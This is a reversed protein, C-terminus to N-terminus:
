GTIAKIGPLTKGEFFELMAGGGTSVYSVSDALNFQKVAAVSDGGGVLSFAGNATSQAIAKAIEVTGTKFSDMEFVGMPGNWLITKSNQITAKFNEIAKKGIDLGMWADAIKDSDALQTNANNAFDDAIISDIPLLLQTNNEKAKQLLEKALDLKDDECLSKGINGGMAKFFTYAMGGGIIINDAQEMLNDIIEIKDSVKAGGLIATFPHEAEKLVKNANAIEKAMLFGFCKNGFFQAITATSAHARHATGFADNVYIDAGLDALSKAFNEDGKKEESYFRTNELLLVEGAALNAVKVKVKDGICDDIFQVPKNLLNSLEGGIHQLSFEAKKEGKPRGLHSMLVCSGGNDLIYNITPLAAVIRTNDTVVLDKNLPVNFDVRILAKKGTFDFNEVTNM